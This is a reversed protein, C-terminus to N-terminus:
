KEADVVEDVGTAGKKEANRRKEMMMVKQEEKKKQRLQKKREREKERKENEEKRKMAQQKAEEGGLGDLLEKQTLFRGGPGRIRRRAHNHRSEHMYPKRKEEGTGNKKGGTPSFVAGIKNYKLEHKARAARRRLIAEYQKANVYVPPAAAAAAAAAAAMVLHQQQQQEQHHEQAQNNTDNAVLLATPQLLYQQAILPVNPPPPHMSPMQYQAQFSSSPHHNYLTATAAAAAVMGDVGGNMASTTQAHSEEMRRRKVMEEEDEEERQRETTEDDDTDEDDVDEVSEKMELLSEESGKKKTKTKTKENTNKRQLRSENDKKIELRKEIDDYASYAYAQAFAAANLVINKGSEEFDANNEVISHGGVNTTTNSSKNNMEEAARTMLFAYRAGLFIKRLLIRAGLSCCVGFDFSLLNLVFLLLLSSYESWRSSRKNEEEDLYLHNKM